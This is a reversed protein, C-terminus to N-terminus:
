HNIVLRAASKHHDSVVLYTGNPLNQVNVPSDTSCSMIKKGELTLLDVRSDPTDFVVFQDAPNPSVVVKTMEPAEASLTTRPGLVPRLMLAGKLFSQQWETEAQYFIYASADGSRDFGLNMYGFVAQQFGVYITGQVNVDTELDYRVFENLGEFRPHRRQTDKYILDGPRGNNDAWVCIYFPLNENAAALVRNFYLDLASITDPQALVFQVAVKIQGMDASIGYGNESTGDDYAYYNQFLQRCVVTDNEPHLDGSVGEKVIHEIRYDQSDRIEPFAFGVTAALYRSTRQFTRDSFWSPVNEHGTEETNILNGQGDMVRYSYSTSLQQEYLNSIRLVVSDAMDSTRYQWAPMATYRRLFSPSKEVFSVDRVTTDYVSRDCDLWVYDINWQDSNSILGATTSVDLSCRNRFRFQFGPNFYDDGQVKVFVWKWPFGTTEVLSQLTFGCTDWVREWRGLVPNYFELILSDKLEPADGMRSWASGMGGGPAFYFSFGLSDAFSLKRPQPLFLSDLRIPLSCLTDGGFVDSADGYLSGESDFADLTAMGVTPSFDAYDANVFAGGAQWLAANPTGSLSSFDEFFPLVLQNQSKIPQSKGANAPLLVEQAVAKSAGFFLAILILVSSLHARGVM